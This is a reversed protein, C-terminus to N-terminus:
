VCCLSKLLQKLFWCIFFVLIYIFFSTKENVVKVFVEDVPSGVWNLYAANKTLDAVHLVCLFVKETKGALMAKAYVTLPVM